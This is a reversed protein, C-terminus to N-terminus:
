NYKYRMELDSSLFSDRENTAWIRLVFHDVDRDEKFTNM